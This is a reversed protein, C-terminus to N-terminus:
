LSHFQMISDIFPSVRVLVTQHKETGNAVSWQHLMAPRIRTNRWKKGDLALERCYKCNWY